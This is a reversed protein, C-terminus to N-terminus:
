RSALMLRRGSGGCARSVKRLRVATDCGLRADCPAARESQAARVDVHGATEGSSVADYRIGLCIAALHWSVVPSNGGSVSTKESHAFRAGPIRAVRTGKRGVCRVGRAKLGLPACCTSRHLRRASSAILKSLLAVYRVQQFELFRSQGSIPTRGCLPGGQDLALSIACGSGGIRVELSLAVPLRKRSAGGYEAHAERQM